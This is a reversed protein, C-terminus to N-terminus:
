ERLDILEGRIEPSAGSTSPLTVVTKGLYHGWWGAQVIATKGVFLPEKLISHTHGGVVLDIGPVSAVLEQDKQLGIHNLAIVIDAKARLQPVLEAAVFLPDEFWYPSVKSALMKPTIMPVTLGFISVRIGDVVLDISSKVNPDIGGNRSRLNACLVPFRALRVKSRLGASMFHFERNGMTMADYGLDSMRALVPEGSPRYYINGSSIADGCDLLLSKAYSSRVAAIKDAACDTLKGHLDNTHLITLEFM